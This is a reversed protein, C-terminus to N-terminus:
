SPALRYVLRIQDEPHFFIGRIRTVLYEQHQTLELFPVLRPLSPISAVVQPICATRKLRDLGVSGLHLDSFGCRVFAADIHDLESVVRELITLSIWQLYFIVNNM